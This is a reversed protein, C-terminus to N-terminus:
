KNTIREALELLQEALFPKTLFEDAGAAEARKRVDAQALATLMVITPSRGAVSTKLQRCLEIGDVGPMHVDLLIMDPRYERALQLAENGDRALVVEYHGSLTVLVLRRVSREDDVTLITKM